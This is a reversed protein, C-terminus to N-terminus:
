AEQGVLKMVAELVAERSMVNGGSCLCKEVPCRGKVVAEVDTAYQAPISMEVDLIAKVKGYDLKEFAETPFPNLTIPRIM